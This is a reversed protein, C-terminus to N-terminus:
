AAGAFEHVSVDAVAEDLVEFVKDRRELEGIMGAIADKVQRDTVGDALQRLHAIRARLGKPTDDM